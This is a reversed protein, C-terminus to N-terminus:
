LLWRYRADHQKTRARHLYRACGLTIAYAITVIYRWTARCLNVAAGVWIPWRFCHLFSYRYATYPTNKEIIINPNLSLFNTPSFM